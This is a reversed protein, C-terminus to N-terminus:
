KDTIVIFQYLGKSFCYTDLVMSMKTGGFELISTYKNVIEIVEVWLLLEFYLLPTRTM